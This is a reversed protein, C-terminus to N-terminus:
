PSGTELVRKLEHIDLRGEAWQAFCELNESREMTDAENQVTLLHVAYACEWAYERAVSFNGDTLARGITEIEAM